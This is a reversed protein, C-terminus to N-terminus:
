FCLSVYVSQCVLVSPFSELILRCNLVKSIIMTNFRNQNGSWWWWWCCFVFEVLVVVVVVLVMKGGFCDREEWWVDCWGSADTPPVTVLCTLYDFIEFKAWTM